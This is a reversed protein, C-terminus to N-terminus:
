ALYLIKELYKQSPSINKMKPRRIHQVIIIGGLMIEAKLEFLKASHSKEMNAKNGIIM